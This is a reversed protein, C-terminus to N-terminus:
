SRHYQGDASNCALELQEVSLRDQSAAASAVIRQVVDAGPSLLYVAGAARAIAIAPRKLTASVAMANALSRWMDRTSFQEMWREPTHETGRGHGSVVILGQGLEYLGEPDAQWAGLSAQEGSLSLQVPQRGILIPLARRVPPFAEVARPSHFAAHVRVGLRDGTADWRIPSAKM